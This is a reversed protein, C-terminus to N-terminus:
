KLVIVGDYHVPYEVCSLCAMADLSMEVGIESDREPIPFGQAIVCGKFLPLWCSGNTDPAPQFPLCNISFRQSGAAQFVVRSLGTPSDPPSLQTRFASAMWALQQAAQIIQRGTGYVKVNAGKIWKTVSLGFEGDFAHISELAKLVTRATDPWYREAYQKCTTAWAADVSGTLTLMSGFDQSEGMQYDRFDWLDWVIHLTAEYPVRGEMVSEIHQMPDLFNLYPSLGKGIVRLTHEQMTSDTTNDNLLEASGKLM